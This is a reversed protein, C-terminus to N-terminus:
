TAGEGEPLTIFFVASSLTVVTEMHLIEAAVGGVLVLVDAIDVSDTPFHAVNLRLVDGGSVFM